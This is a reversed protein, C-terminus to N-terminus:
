RTSHSEMYELILEDINRFFRTSGDEPDILLGILFATLLLCYATHNWLIKVQLPAAM